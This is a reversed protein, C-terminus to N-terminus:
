PFLGSCGLTLQKVILNLQFITDLSSFDGDDEVAVLDQVFGLHLFEYLTRIMNELFSKPSVGYM